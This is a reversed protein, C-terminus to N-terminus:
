SETEKRSGTGGPFSTKAGGASLWAVDPHPLCATNVIGAGGLFFVKM